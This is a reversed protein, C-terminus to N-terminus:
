PLYMCTIDDAAVRLPDGGELPRVTLVGDVVSVVTGSTARKHGDATHFLRVRTGPAVRALQEPVSASPELPPSPRAILNPRRM